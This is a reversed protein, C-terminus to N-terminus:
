LFTETKVNNCWTPLLPNLIQVYHVTVFEETRFLIARHKCKEVNPLLNNLMQVYCVTVFERGRFSNSQTQLQKILYCRSMACQWSEQTEFVNERRQCKNWQTAFSRTDPCLMSACNNQTLLIERHKCKNWYTAFSQADPCLLSDCKKRNWLSSSQIQTREMLYCSIPLRSMAYHWLEQSGFHIAKSKCTNWQTAYSWTEPCVQWLEKSNILIATTECKCPIKYTISTSTGRAQLIRGNEDELPTEPNHSGQHFDQIVIRTHLRTLIEKCDFEPPLPKTAM